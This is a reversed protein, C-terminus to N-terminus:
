PNMKTNPYRSRFDRAKPKANGQIVQGSSTLKGVRYFLRVVEPHSSLGSQKLLSQLEPTVLRQDNYVRKSVAVAENFNAGGIEQDSKCAALGDRRLQAVAEFPQQSIIPGVKAYLKTAADQSLNLEKAVEAFAGLVANSEVSTVSGDANKFEYAEPAGLVSPSDDQDGETQQPEQGADDGDLLGSEEGANVANGASADVVPENAQPEAAVPEVPQANDQVPTQDQATDPSEHSNEITVM